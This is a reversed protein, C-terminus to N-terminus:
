VMFNFLNSQTRSLFFSKQPSCFLRGFGEQPHSLGSLHNRDSRTLRTGRPVSSRGQLPPELKAQLYASAQRVFSRGAVPLRQSYPSVFALMAVEFISIQKRSARRSLFAPRRGMRPRTPGVLFRSGSRCPFAWCSMYVCYDQQYKSTQSCFLQNLFKTPKCTKQQFLRIFFLKSFPNKLPPIRKWSEIYGVYLPFALQKEVKKLSLNGQKKM